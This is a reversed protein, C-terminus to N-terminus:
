LILFKLISMHSDVIHMNIILVIREINSVDKVLIIPKFISIPSFYFM